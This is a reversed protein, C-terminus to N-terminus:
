NFKSFITYCVEFSSQRFLQLGLLFNIRFKQFGGNLLFNPFVPAKFESSSSYVQRKVEVSLKEEGRKLSLRTGRVSVEAVLEVHTLNHISPLTVCVTLGLKNRQNLYMGKNKEEIRSFQILM